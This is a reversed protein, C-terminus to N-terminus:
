KPGPVKPHYKGENQREIKSVFRTDIFTHVALLTRITIEVTPCSACMYVGVRTCWREFAHVRISACTFTCCAHVIVQVYVSMYVHVTGMYLFYLDAFVYVCM